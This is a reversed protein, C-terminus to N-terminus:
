RYRIVQAGWTFGIGSSALVVIDGPSILSDDHQLALAFLTDGPGISGFNKMTSRTKKEDLGLEALIDQVRTKKIQNTLLWSI